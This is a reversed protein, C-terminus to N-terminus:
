EEPGEELGEGEEEDAAVLGAAREEAARAANLALLRALVEDKFEASWDLRTKPAKGEDAEQEIFEPAARDALDNWGYARLVAVDMEHHLARLRAIDAGSEGRAHFRNYTKTLGEKRTIMLEARFAHYAEGTTELRADSDFGPPFPYNRFCDELNYRGRDELTSGLSHVWLEHIRSNVSAFPGSKSYAFILLTQDYVKGNPLFTFTPFHASTLARALVRPFEALINYLKDRREAHRWWYTRRAARNDELRIPKVTHEVIAMLDPWGSTAESESINGFDIVYRRHKQEPDNNVDEGGIYPFIRELNRPNEEILRQMTAISSANGKVAAADDFTFGTGLVYSGVFAKGSNAVLAVPSTDLDGEVLYASVRRVPRTDLVPSAAEGKVIHVVSVVVAAEGPWKLRRTARLIAGGDAIINTLGSARTDGQGITNTAILGFVGGQRLLRFARRFFHAVLDANGHAGEHLTQLWPLYNRASGGIITNKGAFPPNGVVADFGGNDRAFVEPFEIQWHFPTIGHEGERLKAAAAQLLDWRPPMGSIHSEVDARAKERTKAKDAAFFASVVADGMMRLPAVEFELNRHRAEQLARLTDDPANQIEARGKMAKAVSDRVLQRFLPLGPKSEDWNAAAIQSTTLGVLSDGCKLAHDLFTFEHDRALTALWLSLRALDVARPNKDVGYLCRQAVLRRAHLEEDEDAPIKPRKDPWRAWAAVLREGIARCAEVLFAGSGMAPDCVKLELVQEPTADPGLRTFAPELAHKVIPATLSRPTYHSGTRRREGTPQLIPTGAAASRKKPSGREDVINDLAAALDEVTKAEEVPKAQATTLARGSDEKLSKIRDKGKRALLEDLAVFVPTKNNKGAKIALVRALSSEATFGMVTEYVSGIQEVDLTRYSLRERNQGRLKITMLGELIRLLCGDSVHLIRPADDKAARGELFPFEDPDFLKGGRAQVFGTSHGKHIMRFLALLGGWGGRREDMTDPNLSADEALKAYLGRVSYSTEYIERSRAGPLSPLLDRDEAYLVFVLRMLVTLLGEYLHDPRATSLERVLAPEAVDLGRLLEHLAGLVQEALATSVLAQADRSRKLLAPLRRDDGDSFLRFRDLLLKLGGLMSRGSVLAMPRIPFSQHGSTEGRPAYILRFEPYTRVQGDKREERESILLGSFVGTDRLLREFRQHPTAEWGNLANRGDPDVGCAEVRVLLQWRREGDGLEAVAWTPSLTTGHEPLAVLLDDPVAPGGPAGAVHRAEWGLVKEVFAWPDSLAPTALDDGIIEAVEGTEIASQRPPILGLEKLLTPAVVLGVPPVLDLWELDPDRNIDITM